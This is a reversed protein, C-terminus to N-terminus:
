TRLSGASDCLVWAFTMGKKKSSGDSVMFSYKPKVKKNGQTPEKSPGHQQLNELISYPTDLLQLDQFLTQEWDPLQSIYEKFTRPVSGGPKQVVELKVKYTLRKAKAMTTGGNDSAVVPEQPALAM